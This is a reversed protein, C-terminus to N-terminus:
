LIVELVPDVYQLSKFEVIGHETVAYEPLPVIEFFMLYLWPREIPCGWAHLVETIAREQAAMEQPPVDAIFGGLPLRIEAAIQGDRVLVGEGVKRPTIMPRKKADEENAYNEEDMRENVM